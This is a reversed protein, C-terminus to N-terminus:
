KPSWSLFLMCIPMLSGRTRAGARWDGQIREQQRFRVSASLPATCNAARINCCLTSFLPNPASLGACDETAETISGRGVKGVQNEGNKGDYVRNWDCQTEKEIGLCGLKDGSGPM